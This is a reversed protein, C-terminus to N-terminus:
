RRRDAVHLAKRWGSQPPRKEQKILQQSSVDQAQSRYQQQPFNNPYQAGAFQGYQAPQRHQAPGSQGGGVQYPGSQAGPVPYPGSANGPVQYPGSANGPM